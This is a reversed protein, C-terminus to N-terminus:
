KNAIRDTNEILQGFGYTFFSGIWSLLCGLVLILIGPLITPSYSSNQAWMAIASFVSAIIGIWCLVKALAKIKGGINEFM